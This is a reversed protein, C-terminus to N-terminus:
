ALGDDALERLAAPHKELAGLGIGHLVGPAKTFRIDRYDVVQV